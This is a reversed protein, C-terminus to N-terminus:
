PPNSRSQVPGGKGFIELPAYEAHLYLFQTDDSNNSRL